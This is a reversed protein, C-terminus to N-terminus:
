KKSFKETKISKTQINSICRTPILLRGHDGANQNLDPPFKPIPKRMKPRQM